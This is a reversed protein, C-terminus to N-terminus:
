APPRNGSAGSKVATLCYFGGLDEGPYSHYSRQRLIRRTALRALFPRSYLLAWKLPLPRHQFFRMSFLYDLRMCYETEARDFHSEFSQLALGNARLRKQWEELSLLNHMPQLRCYTERSGPELDGPWWELAREAALTFHFSGGPRLVRAIEALAGDLGAVHELGSNNVLTQFTADHWPLKSSVDSQKLEGYLPEASDRRVQAAMQLASDSFDVGATFGAPQFLTAFFGDGCCHDLSPAEIEQSLLYQLEPIRVLAYSPSGPYKAVLTTLHPCAEYSQLPM